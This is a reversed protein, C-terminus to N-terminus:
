CNTESNNINKGCNKKHDFRSCRINKFVKISSPGCGDSVNWQTEYKWPTILCSQSESLSNALFFLSNLSICPSFDAVIAKPGSSDRKARFNEGPAQEMPSKRWSPIAKLSTRRFKSWIWWFLYSCFFYDIWLTINDSMFRNKKEPYDNCHKIFVPPRPSPPSTLGPEPHSRPPSPKWQTTIKGSSLTKTHFRTHFNITSYLIIHQLNTM